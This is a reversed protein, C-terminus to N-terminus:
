STVAASSANARQLAMEVRQMLPDSAQGSELEGEDASRGLGSAVVFEGKCHQCAVTRGLLSAQIHVRRGCIPCSQTFLVPM